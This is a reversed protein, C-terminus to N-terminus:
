RRINGHGDGGGARGTGAIAAKDADNQLHKRTAHLLLLSAAGSNQQRINHARSAVLSHWKVREGTERWAPAHRAVRSIRM